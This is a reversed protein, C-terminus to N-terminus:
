LHRFRHDLSRRRRHRRQRRAGADRRRRLGRLDSELPGGRGVEGGDTRRGPKCRLVHGCASRWHGGRRERGAKRLSGRHRRRALTQRRVVRCTQGWRSGSWCRGINLLGSRRRVPSPRSRVLRFVLRRRLSSASIFPVDNGLLLPERLVGVRDLNGDLQWVVRGLGRPAALTLCDLELNRERQQDTGHSVSDRYAQGLLEEEGKGARQGLMESTM